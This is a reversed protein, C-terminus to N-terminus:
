YKESSIIQPSFLCCQVTHRVLMKKRIFHPKIVNVYTLVLFIDDITYFCSWPSRRWFCVSADQYNFDSFSGHFQSVMYLVQNGRSHAMVCIRKLNDPNKPYLAPQFITILSGNRRDDSGNNQLGKRQILKSLSPRWILLKGTAIKIPFHMYTNYKKQLFPFYFRNKDSADVFTTFVPIQCWPIVKGLFLSLPPYKGGKREFGVVSFPTIIIMSEAEEEEKTSSYM